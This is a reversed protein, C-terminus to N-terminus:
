RYYAKEYQPDLEIARALNVIILYNTHGLWILESTDLLAYGHEELKMRAFAGILMILIRDLSALLSFRVTATYRLMSPIRTLLKATYIRLRRIVKVQQKFYVKYHIIFRSRRYVGRFAQNAEAKLRSAEQRDQETIESENLSFSEINPSPISSPPTSTLIEPSGPSSSTRDSMSSHSFDLYIEGINQSTTVTRVDNMSSIKKKFLRTNVSFASPECDFCQTSLLSSNLNCIALVPYSHKEKYSNKTATL